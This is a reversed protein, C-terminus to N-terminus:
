EWHTAVAADRRAPDELQAHLDERRRCAEDAERRERSPSDGAGKDYGHLLVITRGPATDFFVRAM